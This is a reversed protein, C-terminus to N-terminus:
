AERREASRDSMETVEPGFEDLPSFPQAFAAVGVDNRETLEQWTGSGALDAERETDQAAVAQKASQRRPEGEGHRRCDNEEGERKTRRNEGAWEDLAHEVAQLQDRNGHH